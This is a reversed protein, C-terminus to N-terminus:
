LNVPKANATGWGLDAVNFGEIPQRFQFADSSGISYSSLSTVLMSNTFGAPAVSSRQFSVKSAASATFVRYAWRDVLYIAAATDSATVSAGANRQDLVMGGNIIRNKFSSANGAGLSYGSETTMKEAQVVGFSM